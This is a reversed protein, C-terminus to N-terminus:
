NSISKFYLNANEAFLMKHMDEIMQVMQECRNGEDSTRFSFM